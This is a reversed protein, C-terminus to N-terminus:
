PNSGDSTIAAVSHIADPPPLVVHQWASGVQTMAHERGLPSHNLKTTQCTFVRMRFGLASQLMRTHVLTKIQMMVCLCAHIKPTDLATAGSCARQQCLNPSTTYLSKRSLVKKDSLFVVTRVWRARSGVMMSSSGGSASLSRYQPQFVSYTTFRPSSVLVIMRIVKNVEARNAYLLGPTSKQFSVGGVVAHGISKM